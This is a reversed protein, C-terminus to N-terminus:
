EPKTEAKLLKIFAPKHESIFIVDEDTRSDGKILINRDENVLSLSLREAVGKITLKAM